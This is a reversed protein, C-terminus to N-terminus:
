MNELYANKPIMNGVKHFLSIVWFIVRNIIFPYIIFFIIIIISKKIPIQSSPVLLYVCTVLCIIFYVWFFLQYWARLMTIGQDQYYTKRDNTLTDSTLDKIKKELILNEQLYDKYLEVIYRSSNYISNYGENQYLVDNVNTIFSSAILKGIESAKVQLEEEVMSNYGNEGESYIFFNKKAAAFQQPATLINTQADLYKKKLEMTKKMKQCEIGCTLSQSSSSLLNNLQNIKDDM